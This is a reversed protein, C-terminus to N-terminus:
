VATENKSNEWHPLTVRPLINKYQQTTSPSKQMRSERDRVAHNPIANVEATMQERFEEYDAHKKETEDWATTGTIGEIDASIFVKM